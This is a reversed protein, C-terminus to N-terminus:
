KKDKRALSRYEKDKRKVQDEIGDNIDYLAKWIDQSKAKEGSKEDSMPEGEAELVALEELAISQMMENYSLEADEMVAWASETISTM